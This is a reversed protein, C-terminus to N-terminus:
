KTLCNRASDEVFIGGYIQGEHIPSEQYGDWVVSTTNTPKKLMGVHFQGGGSNDNTIPETVAELPDYSESYFVQLTNKIYDVKIGWNQWEDSVIATSWIVNNKRDLVKWLKRDMGVGSVSGNGAQKPADQELIVGANVSFQNSAYDNAEHWVNMYEHSLNMSRGEDQKVSWHFTKVGVNTADSGNGMILEARRFGYQMNKGGSLFVSSNTISVEVAKSSPYDFKSPVIPPFQLISSWNLNYGKVHTSSFPSSTTDFTSLPTSQPIRGEIIVPCKHYTNATPVATTLTAFVAAIAACIISNVM